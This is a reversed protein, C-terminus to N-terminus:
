ISSNGAHQSPSPGSILVFARDDTAFDDSIVMDYYGPRDILRTGEGPIVLDITVDDGALGVSIYSALDLILPSDVDAAERIQSLVEFQNVATWWARGNPLTAVVTKAFPLGSTVHFPVQQTAM